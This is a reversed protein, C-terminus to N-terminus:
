RVLGGIDAESPADSALRRGITAGAGSRRRKIQTQPRHMSRTVDMFVDEYKQRKEVKKQHAVAQLYEQYDDNTMVYEKNDTPDTWYMYGEDLPPRKLIDDISMGGELMETAKEIDVYYPVEYPSPEVYPQQPMMGEEVPISFPQVYLPRKPDKDYPVISLMDPTGDENTDIMEITDRGFWWPLAEQKGGLGAHEPAVGGLTYTMRYADDKPSILNSTHGTIQKWEEASGVHPQKMTAFISGDANYTTIGFKQTLGFKTKEGETLATKLTGTKPDLHKTSIITAAPMVKDDKGAKGGEYTSEPRDVYIPTGESVKTADWGSIERSIINPNAEDGLQTVASVGTFYDDPYNGDVVNLEGWTSRDLYQESSEITTGDAKVHKYMPYGTEDTKVTKPTASAFLDYGTPSQYNQIDQNPNYVDMDIMKGFDQAKPDWSQEVKMTSWSMEADPGGVIKPEQKVPDMTKTVPNYVLKPPPALGQDQESVGVIPLRWKGTADQVPAATQLTYGVQIAPASPAVGIATEPKFGTIAGYPKSADDFNVQQGTFAMYFKIESELKNMREANAEPAKALDRLEKTKDIVLKMYEKPVKVGVQPAGPVFLKPYRAAYQAAWDQYGSGGDIMKIPIIGHGPLSSTDAGGEKLSDKFWGADEAAKILNDLGGLPTGDGTPVQMENGTGEGAYASTPIATYKQTDKDSDLNTGQSQLAKPDLAIANPNQIYNTPLSLTFESKIAPTITGQLYSPTNVNGVYGTTVESKTETQAYASPLLSLGSYTKLFGSAATAIDFGGEKTVHEPNLSFRKGKWAKSAQDSLASSFQKLQTAPATGSIQGAWALPNAKQSAAIAAGLAGTQSTSWHSKTSTATSGSGSLAKGWAGPNAKKSAAIAAGLAGTQSTSWSKAKQSSTTGKSRSGGRGASGTSRGRGRGGRSGSGGGGSSSGGSKGKGGGKAGGGKASTKGRSGGRRGAGGRGRRGGSRRATDTCSVEAINDFIETLLHLVMYFIVIGM